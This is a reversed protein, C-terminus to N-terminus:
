CCEHDRGLRLAQAVFPPFDVYGLDLRERAAIYYLEDRFYDFNSNTLLHVILKFSALHALIATAGFWGGQRLTREAEAVPEHRSVNM